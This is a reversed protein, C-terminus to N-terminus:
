ATARIERSLRIHAEIDGFEDHAIVYVGEPKALEVAYSLACAKNSFILDPRSSYVRRVAWGDHHPVVHINRERVTPLHESWERAMSMAISTAYKMNYGEALLANGIEVAKRRVRLSLLKMSRPYNRTTWVM